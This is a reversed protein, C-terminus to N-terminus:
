LPPRVTGHETKVAEAELHSNCVIPVTEEVSDLAEGAVELVQISNKSYV